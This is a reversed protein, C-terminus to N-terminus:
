GAAIIAKPTFYLHNSFDEFSRTSNGSARDKMCSCLSDALVHGGFNNVGREIFHDIHQSTLPCTAGALVVDGFGLGHTDFRESQDIRTSNTQRVHFVNHVDSLPQECRVIQQRNGRVVLDAAHANRLVEVFKCRITVQM